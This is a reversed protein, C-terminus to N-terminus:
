FCHEPDFDDALMVGEAIIANKIEERFDPHALPIIARIRDKITKLYINAVGYETVIYMQLWRPTTVISKEPLWPVVNSKVEGNETHTSRLCVFSRGGKSMTAGYIYAFSGGLGSYQRLGQAESCAQGTVDIMLTSNIAVVNEAQMIFLPNIMYSVPMLEAKTDPRGAYKYFTTSVASLSSARLRTAKGNELMPVMSDCAVETFFEIGNLDNLNNMVEVGLGGWGIQLKDGENIYPKILDAMIKDVENSPPNMIEIMETECEVIQDFETIHLSVFEHPGTAPNQAHDIFAIRKKTNPHHAYLTSNCVGYVSVNCWGEEDPPCVHMAFVNAGYVDSACRVMDHYGNCGFELVHEEGSMRELPLHFMSVIKFHKTGERDFFLPIPNTCVNYLLRAGHYKEMNDHMAQLLTYPIQPGQGLWLGDDPNLKDEVEEVTMLHEQYYAKWDAALNIEAM